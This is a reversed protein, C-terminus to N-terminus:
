DGNVIEVITDWTADVVFIAIAALTLLAGKKMVDRYFVIRERKEKIVAKHYDHHGRPDDGPFAAMLGALLKNNEDISSRLREYEEIICEFRRERIASMEHFSEALEKHGLNNIHMFIQHDITGLTKKDEKNTDM